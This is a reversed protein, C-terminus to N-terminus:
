DRIAEVVLRLFERATNDHWRWVIVLDKEPDVRITNSGYGVAAFASGSLAPWPRASPPEFTAPPTPPTQPKNLWWLYGYDHKVPSSSTAARVWAESVVQREGWKGKRAFLLGFRAQDRASIWLGGGWRTGGTVSQVRKGEIEVFANDYGLYKWNPSAGIPDMIDAKLVEPLPKGFVRLLSLAFRNIRVDNYEYRTGPDQVLRPRMQGQGFEAVAQFDSKKGWMEGEWESTQTAHHAWTVKANQPSDYGGDKVLKGVPDNVDPILKRDTAIGLLTSLFSKAASYTPEVANTDGWEAVIYGNRIIIGKTAGREKPIQGLLRGFVTEQNSFDKPHRGEHARAYEIANALKDPDFGAEAPSKSEWSDKTPFYPAQALCFATAALLPLLHAIRRM